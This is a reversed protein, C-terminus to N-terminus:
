LRELFVECVDRYEPDRFLEAAEQIIPARLLLGNNRSVIGYVGTKSPKGPPLIDGPVAM